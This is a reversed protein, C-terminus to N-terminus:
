TYLCLGYATMHSVNRDSMTPTKSALIVSTWKKMPIHELSKALEIDTTFLQSSSQMQQAETVDFNPPMWTSWERHMWLETERWPGQTPDASSCSNQKKHKAHAKIYHRTWCVAFLGSQWGGYFRSIDFDLDSAGYKGSNSIGRKESKRRLSWEKSERLDATAKSSPGKSCCATLHSARFVRYRLICSGALPEVARMYDSLQVTTGRLTNGLFRTRIGMLTTNYEVDDEDTSYKSALAPEIGGSIPFRDFSVMRCSKPFWSVPSARKLSIWYLVVFDNKSNIFTPFRRTFVIRQFKYISLSMFTYILPNQYIDRYKLFTNVLFSQHLSWSLKSMPYGYM